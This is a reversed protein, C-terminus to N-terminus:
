ATLGTSNSILFTPVTVSTNTGANDTFSLGNSVVKGNIVAFYTYGQASAAAVPFSKDPKTNADTVMEAVASPNTAAVQTNYRYLNFNTSGDLTFANDKYTLTYQTQGNALTANYPNSTATTGAYSGAGTIVAFINQASDDKTLVYSEGSGLNKATLTNFKNKDTNNDTRYWTITYDTGYTKTELGTVTLKDGVQASSSNGRLTLSDNRIEGASLTNGSFYVSATTKDLTKNNPATVTVQYYFGKKANTLTPSKASTNETKPIATFSKGDIGQAWQFTYGANEPSSVVNGNEDKIVATVSSDDTKLSLTSASQKTVTIASSYQPYGAVGSKPTAIVVVNYGADAATVTYTSETAGAIANSANLDKRSAGIKYRYWQYTVGDNLDQTGPKKDSKTYQAKVTAKLVDGVYAGPNNFGDQGEPIKYTSHTTNTTAVSTLTPTAVKATAASAVENKSKAKVTIAKGIQDTTVTFESGTAGAIAADDAYWQYTVNEADAPAVTAKLVTGVLVDKSLDLDSNPASVTVGTLETTKKTEAKKTKFTWTAKAKTNAKTYVTVKATGVGKVKVTAHKGKTAIVKVIKSDSSKWVTKQAASTLKSPSLKYKLTYKSGVKGYVKAGTHNLKTVKTAKKATAAFSSYTLAPMFAAVMLVALVVSLLARSSKTRTM